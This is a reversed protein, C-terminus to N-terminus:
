RSGAWGAQFLKAVGIGPEPARRPPQSDEAHGGPRTQGLRVLATPSGARASGMSLSPVSAAVRRPSASAPM